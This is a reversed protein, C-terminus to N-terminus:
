KEERASGATLPSADRRPLVEALSDVFQDLSPHQAFVEKGSLHNALAGYMKGILKKFETPLPQPALKLDQVAIDKWSRTNDDKARSQAEQLGVEWDTGRYVQRIIEKSLHCRRYLLRLEDPGISDALLLKGDHLIMEFKGDWLEVNKDAFIVYLALATDLALEVLEEFQQATLASM